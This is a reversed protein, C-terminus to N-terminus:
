FARVHDFDGFCGYLIIIKKGFKELLEIKGILGIKPITLKLSYWLTFSKKKTFGHFITDFKM